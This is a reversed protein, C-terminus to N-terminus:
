RLPKRFHTPRPTQSAFLRLTPIISGHVVRLKFAANRIRTLNAAPRELSNIVSSQFLNGAIINHANTTGVMAYVVGALYEHKIDTVLEGSLYENISVLNLHRATSMDM